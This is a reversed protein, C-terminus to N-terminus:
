VPGNDDHNADVDDDDGDGDDDLEGDDNDGGSEDEDHDDGNDGNDDGDYDDDYDSDRGYVPNIDGDFRARYLSKTSRDAKNDNIALEHLQYLNPTALVQLVGDNDM